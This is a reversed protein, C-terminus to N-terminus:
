LFTKLFDIKCHQVHVTYTIVYDFGTYLTQILFNASLLHFFVLCVMYCLTLLYSDMCGVPFVSRDLPHFIPRLVSFNLLRIFCADFFNSLKGFLAKFPPGFPDEKSTIKKKVKIVQSSILSM